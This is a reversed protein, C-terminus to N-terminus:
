VDKFYRGILFLMIYYGMLIYAVKVKSDGPVLLDKLDAVLVSYKDM